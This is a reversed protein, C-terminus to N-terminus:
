PLALGQNSKKPSSPSATSIFCKGIPLGAIVVYGRLKDYDMVFVMARGQRTRRAGEKLPGAGGGAMYRAVTSQARTFGLKLLEVM